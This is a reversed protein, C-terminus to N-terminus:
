LQNKLISKNKWQDFNFLKKQDLLYFMIFATCSGIIAGLYVDYYFHVFLIIRSLGTLLALLFFLFQARKYPTIIAIAAFFAFAATTHGSPTSHNYIFDVQGSCATLTEKFFHPPRHSNIIGKLIITFMSSTFWSIFIYAGPGMKILFVILIFPIIVQPEGLFTLSKFVQFISENFNSCFWLVWDGKQYQIALYLGAVVVFLLFPYYFGAHKQLMEKM